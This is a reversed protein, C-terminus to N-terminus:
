RAVTRQFKVSETRGGLQYSIEAQLLDSNKHSQGFFSGNGGEAVLVSADVKVERAEGEDYHTFSYTRKWGGGANSWDPPASKDGYEHDAIEDVVSQAVLTSLLKGEAERGWVMGYFTADAVMLLALGIIALAVLAEVLTWGETKKTM